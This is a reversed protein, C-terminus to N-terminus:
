ATRRTPDGTRTVVPPADLGCHFCARDDGTGPAAGAAPPAEGPVAAPGHGPGPPRRPVPRATLTGFAIAAGVACLVASVVMARRFGDVLAGAGVPESADFGALLPLGAVGVLGAARAVANNVGSAMGAHRADVAALVTTTLPAVMITLGAGFVLVAPLVAGLYGAGPEIRTYLLLGAAVVLPGVTLPLRPGTRQAVAGSTASLALMLVTAPFLAAGAALPSYGLAQQLVLSVLFLVVGLAAYVVFTLLNTSRFVPNAFIDVPMMPHRGRREVVVFAALAAVGLLGAPWSRETLGYTTGALGLAALAMGAVDIGPAAQPDRSEPVHRVAIYLVLAALPLNVLFIWRWSLEVLWGGLFPGVAIAVGGLGSWAGVARARDDPHFSAAIIALSGPTLLAGGVGQLARAAVLLPVSDAVACLASAAAFWVVGICFVLRRGYRDGLAGAALIGAALTLTYGTVIWQLGAFSADLDDAIRPLAVNVVTADVSVIGSGLVM